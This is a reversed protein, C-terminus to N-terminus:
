YKRFIVLTISNINRKKRLVFACRAGYMQIQHIEM